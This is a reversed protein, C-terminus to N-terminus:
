KKRAEAMLSIARKRVEEPADFAMRIAEVIEEPPAYNIEIRAKKADELFAPDKLTAAFSKRLVALRAEPIGPPAAFPRGYYQPSLLLSLTQKDVGETVLDMVFQVKRKALDPHPRHGIDIGVRLKGADIAQAAQVQASDWGWGCLGDVEGREIGLVINSTSTYGPIIKFRMGVLANLIEPVMHTLNGIGATAGVIYTRELFDRASEFKVHDGVVCITALINMSGIWAFNRMDLAINSSGSLQDITLTNQLHTIVSGDKPAQNYVFNGAVMGGAGPMNRVVTNPAGPIHRAIHRALFRAYADYGGGVGSGVVIELGARKYFDAVPDTWGPTPFALAGATAAAVLASFIGRKSM